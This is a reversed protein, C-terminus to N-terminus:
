KIRGIKSIIPMSGAVAEMVPSGLDDAPINSLINDVIGNLSYSETKQSPVAAKKKKEGVQPPTAAFNGTCGIADFANCLNIVTPSLIDKRVLTAEKPTTFTVNKGKLEVQGEALISIQNSTRMKLYADDKVAIEANQGTMNILGMESPKLYMRKDNDTTFYRDNYDTLEGCEDGNTRINYIVRTDTEDNKDFYLAAKTGIEPMCYFLNGTIPKWPFRYAESVAQESDIDLHLKIKEQGTEIVTGTIVAGRLTEAPIKEAEFCEKPFVKCTCTLINDTLATEAEMVYLERGQILLIDGLEMHEMDAIEYGTQQKKRGTDLRNGDRFPLTTHAFQLLDINGRNKGERMGAYFCIGAGPASSEPTMKGQLHSLIRKLFNYDTEQYQILPYQLRRDEINWRMEAGYEGAVANAVDQYTLATNQFSRSKRQIDMQWTYSVAELHLVAYQGEEELRIKQILGIFLVERSGDKNQSFIELKEYSMDSLVKKVDEAKVTGNVKARTHEGYKAHITCSHISLLTFRCNVRLQEYTIKDAM